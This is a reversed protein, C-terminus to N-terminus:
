EDHNGDVSPIIPLTFRFTTGGGPNPTAELRSGHAEIISRSISLGVGMGEARTTVFPEFLRDLVEEALGPGTDCIAVEVSEAEARSTTITVQRRESEAMAEISNRVLNLIVQQIQVKDILVPPLDAGLELGVTVGKEGSGIFALASAEEVVQNIDEEFRQMEGKELFARIRHIIAGARDAQDVAKDMMAYVKDSARGGGAEMVRRSAQVYNMIAALPQNLEHALSSALQGLESLRSAHVLDAQLEHLRTDRERLAEEVRNRETIDTGIAGIANMGDENFIPFKTMLYTHIGDELTFEEEEEMAVGSEIVAQNHATFTDAVDKEFLDYSTKGRGEDETVGFLREAEKNILMYRGEVDNIHIKTPSHNVVARFLAESKMLELEQRALDVSVTNLATALRNLELAGQNVPVTTGRHTSLRLAFNGLRDFDRMRPILLIYVGVLSFLFSIGGLALAVNWNERRLTNISDLSAEVAVWGLIEGSKIPIPHWATATETGLILQLASGRLLEQPADEFRVKIEGEPSREVYSVTRGEVDFVSIRNAKPNAAGQIILREIETIQNNLLYHASLIGLSRTLTSVETVLADRAINTQRNANYGGYTTVSILLCVGLVVPIQFRLSKLWEAGHLRTFHGSSVDAAIDRPTDPRHGRDFQM